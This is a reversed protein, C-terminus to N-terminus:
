DDATESAKKRQVHGSFSMSDDDDDDDDEEEEEDGELKQDLAVLFRALLGDVMLELQEDGIGGDEHDQAIADYRDRYTDIITKYHAVRRWIREHNKVYIAVLSAVSAGTLILGIPGGVVVRLLVALAAAGAAGTLIKKGGVGAVGDWAVQWASRTALLLALFNVKSRTNQEWYERIAARLFGEYSEYAETETSM